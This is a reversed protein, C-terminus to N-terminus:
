VNHVLRKEEKSDHLGTVTKCPNFHEELQM